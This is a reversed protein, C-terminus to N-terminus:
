EKPHWGLPTLRGVIRLEVASILSFRSDGAAYKGFADFAECASESSTVFTTLVAGFCDRATIAWESM